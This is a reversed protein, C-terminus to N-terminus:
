IDRWPSAPDIYAVLVGNRRRIAEFRYSLNIKNIEKIIDVVSGQQLVGHEYDDVIITHTKISHEQLATIEHALPFTGKNFWSNRHADLFITAPKNVERMMDAFLDESYGHFLKVEPNEKFRKICHNYNDDFPEVSMIQKYGALVARNVSGGVHTGTEIFFDGSGIYKLFLKTYIDGSNM